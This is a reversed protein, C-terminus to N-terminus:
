TAEEGHRRAEDAVLLLAAALRVAEDPTLRTSWRGGGRPGEADLIMRGDLTMVSVAGDTVGVSSAYDWREDIAEDSV